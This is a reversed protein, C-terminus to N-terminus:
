YLLEKLQNSVENKIATIDSSLTVNVVIIKSCWYQIAETFVPETTQIYDDMRYQINADDPRKVLAGGCSLCKQEKSTNSKGCCECVRRHKIRKLILSPPTKMYICCINFAGDVMKQLAVFQSFNRPYGDLIINENDSTLENEVISNVTTDPILIGGLVKNAIDEPLLNQAIKERLIDGTSIKKANLHKVILDGALGKGSGPPGFIIILNRM